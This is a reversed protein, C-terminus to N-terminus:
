STRNSKRHKEVSISSKQAVHDVESDFLQFMLLIFKELHYLDTLDLTQAIM